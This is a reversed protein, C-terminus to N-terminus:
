EDEHEGEVAERKKFFDKIRDSIILGFITGACFFLIAVTGDTIM